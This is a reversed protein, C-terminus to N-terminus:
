CFRLQLAFKEPIEHLEGRVSGLLAHLSHAVPNSVSVEVDVKVHHPLCNCFVEWRKYGSRFLNDKLEVRITPDRNLSNGGKSDATPERNDTM